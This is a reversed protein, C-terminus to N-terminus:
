QFLGCVHNYYRLRAPRTFICFIHYLQCELYSYKKYCVRSKCIRARDPCGYNLKFTSVRLDRGSGVDYDEVTVVTNMIAFLHMCSLMVSNLKPALVEVIM